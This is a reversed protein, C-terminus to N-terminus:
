QKYSVLKEIQATLLCTSFCGDAATLVNRCAVTTPSLHALDTLTLHDKMPHFATGPHLSVSKFSRIQAFQVTRLYSASYSRAAKRVAICFTAPSTPRVPDTLTLNQKQCDCFACFRSKVSRSATSATQRTPLYSSFSEPLLSLAGSEEKIM